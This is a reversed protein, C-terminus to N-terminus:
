GDVFFEYPKDPLHGVINPFLQIKLKPQDSGLRNPVANVDQKRVAGLSQEKEANEADRRHVM